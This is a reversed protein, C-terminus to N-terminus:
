HHKKDNLHNILDNKEDIIQNLQNIKKVAEETEFKLLNNNKKYNKIENEM